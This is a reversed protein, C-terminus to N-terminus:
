FASTFTSRAAHFSHFFLPLAAYSRDHRCESNCPGAAIEFPAPMRRPKDLSNQEFALQDSTLRSHLQDAPEGADVLICYAMCEANASRKFLLRSWKRHRRLHAPPPDALIQPAAPIPQLLPM